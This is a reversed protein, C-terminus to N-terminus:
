HKFNKQEDSCPVRMEEPEVEVSAAAATAETSCTCSQARTREGRPNITKKRQCWKQRANNIGTNHWLYPSSANNAIRLACVCVFILIYSRGGYVRVAAVAVRHAWCNKIEICQLAMLDCPNVVGFVSIPISWLCMKGIKKMQFESDSAYKAPSDRWNRQCTPPSSQFASFLNIIFLILTQETSQASCHTRVCKIFYRMEVFIAGCM